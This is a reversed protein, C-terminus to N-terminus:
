ASPATAPRLYTPPAGTAATRRLANGARRAATRDASTAPPLSVRVPGALASLLVAAAAVAAVAPSATTTEPSAQTGPGTLGRRSPNSAFCRTLWPRVPKTSAYVPSRAGAAAASRARRRRSSLEDRGAARARVALLPVHCMADMTCLAGPGPTLFASPPARQRNIAHRTMAVATWAGCSSHSFVSQMPTLIRAARM